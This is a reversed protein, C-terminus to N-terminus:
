PCGDPNTASLTKAPDCMHVQGGLAVVVRLPRDAGPLTVDYSQAPPTNTPLTCTAGGTAGTVGSTADAVLRGESNFCIAAPGTIQVGSAVAALVGAQVFQSAEGALMSPVTNISWNSGNAVATLGSQPASNNTLSFVVERSRRLSETQALRIGNALSDTVTRVKSNHVWDSFSPMVLVMLISMLTITVVMEILTFGTSTTPHTNISM